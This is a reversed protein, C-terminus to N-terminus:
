QSSTPLLRILCSLLLAKWEGKRGFRYFFLKIPKGAFVAAATMDEGAVTYKTKGMKIMGLLHSKSGKRRIYKVVDM